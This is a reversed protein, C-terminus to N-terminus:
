LIRVTNKLMEGTKDLSEAKGSYICALRLLGVMADEFYPELSVDFPFRERIMNRLPKSKNAIGGSLVACDIRHGDATIRSYAQVYNEAMNEYAARFVSDFRFNSGNIGKISGRSRDYFSTIVELGRDPCAQETYEDIMKWLLSPPVSDGFLRRGIDAIFDFLVNLSRGSPLHAITRYYNGEFFPRIEYDGQKADADFCILQSGTSVNIMLEGAELFTGLVCSQQDGVAAYVPINRGLVDLKGISAGDACVSPFSMRELGLIDIMEKSWAKSYIDYIGTSAAITEHMPVPHGLLTELLADGLLAVRGFINREAFYKLLCVSHSSNIDCGTKSLVDKPVVRRIHEVYSEEGGVTKELARTDQWTIYPTIATDNENFLMVGHMQSSFLIGEIKYEGCYREIIDSVSASLESLSLESRGAELSSTKPPPTKRIDSISKNDTDLLASKIFSSGLDIALYLM